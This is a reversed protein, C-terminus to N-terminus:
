MNNNLYKEQKSITGQDADYPISDNQSLNIANPTEANVTTENNQSM